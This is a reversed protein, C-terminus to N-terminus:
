SFRFGVSSGVGGLDVVHVVQHGSTALLSISTTTKLTADDQAGSLFPLVRFTIKM